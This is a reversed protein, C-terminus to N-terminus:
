WRAVVTTWQERLFLSLFVSLCLFVSLFFLSLHIFIISYVSKSDISQVGFRTIYQVLIICIVNVCKSVQGVDWSDLHGSVIVM